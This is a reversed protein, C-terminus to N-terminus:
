PTSNNKAKNADEVANSDGPKNADLSKLNKELSSLMNGLGDLGNAEDASLGMSKGDKQLSKLWEVSDLLKEKSHKVPKKKPMEQKEVVEIFSQVTRKNTVNGPAEKLLSLKEPRDPALEYIKGGDDIVVYGDAIEKILLHGVKGGERVWHWGKGVENILTWSNTSDLPYFSTGIIEFKASIIPKPRRPSAPTKASSKGRPKPAPPPDIRLAFAKAQRVLASEQPQQGKEVSSGTQLQKALGPTKLFAEIKEDASLGTVAIFIIFIIAALSAFIGTIRLTKIMFVGIGVKKVVGVVVYKSMPATTQNGGTIKKDINTREACLCDM